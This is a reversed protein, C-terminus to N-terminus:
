QEYEGHGFLCYQSGQVATHIPATCGAFPTSAISSGLVVTTTPQGTQLKALFHRLRLQDGDTEARRRQHAGLISACCPHVSRRVGGSLTDYVANRCCVGLRRRLSPDEQQYGLAAAWQRISKNHAWLQAHLTTDADSAWLRMSDASPGPKFGADLLERCLAPSSNTCSTVKVKGM